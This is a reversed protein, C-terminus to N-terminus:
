YDSSASSEFSPTLQKFAVYEHIPRGLNSGDIEVWAHAEFPKCGPKIGIRIEARIGKNRLFDTLALSQHLCNAPYIGHRAAIECLEACRQAYHASTVNGAKLDGPQQSNKREVILKLRKFGLVRLSLWVLPLRWSLGLLAHREWTELLNWQGTRTKIKHL